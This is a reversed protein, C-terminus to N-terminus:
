DKCSQNMCQHRNNKMWTQEFPCDSRIEKLGPKWNQQCVSDYASKKAEGPHIRLKKEKAMEDMLGEREVKGLEMVKVDVKWAGEAIRLRGMQPRATM